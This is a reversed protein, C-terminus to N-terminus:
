LNLDERKIRWMECSSDNAGVSVLWGNDYEVAGYCIRVKPKWHRASQWLEDGSLIPHQSVKIIRFPPRKEMVVAAVHYQWSQDSRPNKQFAHVFRLWQGDFNFPQTGGRLEGYYTVPVATKFEQRVVNKEVECIVQAPHMRYVFYLRGSTSFFSWNKETGRWDNKGYKPEFWNTVRGDKSLEGYGTVCPDFNLGATKSRAITLSVHPKDNHIFLRADEHSHQDYCSPVIVPVEESHGVKLCLETRWSKEPHWRYTTWLNDGHRIISPNYGYEHNTIFKDVTM